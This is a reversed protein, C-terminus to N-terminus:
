VAVGGARESARRRLEAIDSRISADVLEHLEMLLAREEQANADRLAAWMLYFLSRLDILIDRRQAPREWQDFVVYVKDWLKDYTEDIADSDTQKIFSTRVHDVNTITRATQLLMLMDDLGNLHHQQAIFARTEELADVVWEFRQRGFCRLEDADTWRRVM